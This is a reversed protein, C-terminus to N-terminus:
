SLWVLAIYFSRIPLVGVNRFLENIGARSNDALLDLELQLQSQAVEPEPDLESELLLDGWPRMMEHVISM